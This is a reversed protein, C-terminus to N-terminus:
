QAPAVPLLDAIFPLLFASMFVLWLISGCVCSVWFWILAKRSDLRAGERDGVSLKRNVCGAYLLSVIGLPQCFFFTAILALVLHNKIEGQTEGIVAPADRRLRITSGCVPCDGKDPDYTAGCKECFKM